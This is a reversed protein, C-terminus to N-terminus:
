HKSRLAAAQAFLDRLERASSKGHFVIMSWTFRACLWGTAGVVRNQRNADYVPQGRHHQGDLEVFVGLEPWALDVRAVFTGHRNTVVVQREPDPFGESRFLQVALTELLSETPPADVPRLALVRRIRRVGPTRARGLEPLLAEITAITTLNQRLASELAQEWTLDDLRAALDILTQTGSTVCCGRVSVVDFRTRRHAGTRLNNTSAPVVIDVAKAMVADLGYFEGAAAAGIAAHRAKAAAISRELFTPPEPGEGYMGYGLDVIRGAKVSRYLAGRSVGEARAEAASFVKRM